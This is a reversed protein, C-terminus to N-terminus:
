TGKGPPNIHLSRPKPVTEARVYAPAKLVRKQLRHRISEPLTQRFEEFRDEIAFEIHMDDRWDTRIHGLYVAEGPRVDFVLYAMRDSRVWGGMNATKHDKSILLYLAYKTPYVYAWNKTEMISFTGQAVPIVDKGVNKELMYFERSPNKNNLDYPTGAFAIGPVNKRNGFLMAKVVEGVGGDEGEQYTAFVLAREPNETQAKIAQGLTVPEKAGSACAGLLLVMISVYLINKM